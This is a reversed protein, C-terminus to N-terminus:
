GHRAKLDKISINLRRMVLRVYDEADTQDYVTGRDHIERWRPDAIWGWYASKSKPADRALSSLVDRMVREHREQHDRLEDLWSEARRMLEAQAQQDM